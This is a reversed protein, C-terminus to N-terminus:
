GSFKRKRSALYWICIWTGRIVTIVSVAIWVGYLGLSTRSLILAMGPRLSNSIISVISPPITRGTGKFAGSAVGEINMFPQCFAFIFLYDRGLSVLNPNSLFISFISHGLAIFFISILTGWAAMVGAGIKVGKRIRDWKQAGYNQGIFVVLASGFGGGILWSLSEVQGGIKAVAIADAGFGAEIRSCIM